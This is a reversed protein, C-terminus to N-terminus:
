ASVKWIAGALKARELLAAKVQPIRVDQVSGPPGPNGHLKVPQLLVATEDRPVGQLLDNLAQVLPVGKLDLDYM